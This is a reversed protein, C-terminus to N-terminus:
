VPFVFAPQEPNLNEPYTAGPSVFLVGNLYISLTHESIVTDKMQSIAGDSVQLIEVNHKLEM